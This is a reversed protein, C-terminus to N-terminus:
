KLAKISAHELQFEGFVRDLQAQTMKNRTAAFQRKVFAMKNAPAREAKPKAADHIIFKMYGRLAVFRDKIMDRKHNQPNAPGKLQESSAQVIMNEIQDKTLAPEQADM